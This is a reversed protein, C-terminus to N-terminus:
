RVDVGREPKTLLAAGLWTKRIHCRKDICDSTFAATIPGYKHPVRVNHLRKNERNSVNCDSCSFGLLFGIM